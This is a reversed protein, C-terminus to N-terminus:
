FDVRANITVSRSGTASTIRGFSSSNIDMNPNGWQPKNLFNIADARITFSKGEGVQIRKSLSMDLGLNSPGLLGPLDQATNGTTGPAPNQLIINGSKDVVVQNSFRSPLTADGGFNPLPAPRTSL